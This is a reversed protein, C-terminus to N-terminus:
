SLADIPDISVGASVVGSESRGNLTLTGDRTSGTRPALLFLPCRSRAEKGRGNNLRTGPHHRIRLRETHERLISPAHSLSMGREAERNAICWIQSAQVCKKRCSVLRNPSARSRTRSRGSRCRPLFATTEKFDPNPHAPAPSQRRRFSPVTGRETRWGWRFALVAEFGQIVSRFQAIASSALPCFPFEPIFSLGTALGSRSRRPRADM